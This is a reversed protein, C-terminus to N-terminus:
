ANKKENLLKELHELEHIYQPGTYNYNHIAALDWVGRYSPHQEIIRLKMALVAAAKEIDSLAM